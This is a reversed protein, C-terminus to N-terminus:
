ASEALLNERECADAASKVLAREDDTWEHGYRDLLGIMLTMADIVRLVRSPDVRVTVDVTGLNAM